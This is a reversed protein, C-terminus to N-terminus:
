QGPVYVAFDDFLVEYDPVDNTGVALGVSGATYEFDDVSALLVGNVYLALTRGICDGRVINPANGTLIAAATDKGGVLFIMERGLKKAIYFQGDTGMLLAYFHSADAFRCVVGYYGDLPGSVRHGKVEVRTDVFQLTKVSFVIDNKVKSLMNYGSQTFHYYFDIDNAVVWGATWSFDDSYALTFTPEPPTTATFTATPLPPLTPLPEPTPAVTDTPFPTDTPLPTSTPPLVVMETPTLQKPPAAQATVPAAGPPANQTLEAILTQAAQTYVASTPQPAKTPKKAQGTCSALLLALVLCVICITKRNEESM